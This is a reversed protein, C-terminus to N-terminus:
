TRVSKRIIYKQEKGTKAFDILINIPMYSIYLLSSLYFLCSFEMM